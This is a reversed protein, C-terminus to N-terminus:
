SKLRQGSDAPEDQEEEDVLDEDSEGEDDEYESEDDEDGGQEEYDVDDDAEDVEDVADIADASFLTGDAEGEEMMRRMQEWEEPTVIVERAVSGKHEGIIGALGMQDILRSARTYGIALRRQLLSVSGRGSEVIIEVAKVFLPDREAASLGADTDGDAGPARLVMLQREFSPAAVDKLFRTVKRIELDDV